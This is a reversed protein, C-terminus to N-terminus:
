YQANWFMYNSLRAINHIWLDCNLLLKGSILFNLKGHFQLIMSLSFRIMYSMHRGHGTGTPVFIKVVFQITDKINLIWETSFCEKNIIFFRICFFTQAFWTVRFKIVIFFKLDRSYVLAAIIHQNDPTVSKDHIGINKYHSILCSQINM